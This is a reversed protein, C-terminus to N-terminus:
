RMGMMVQLLLQRKLEFNLKANQIDVLADKGGSLIALPNMATARKLAREQEALQQELLQMEVLADAPTIIGSKVSDIVLDATKVTGDLAGKADGRFFNLLKNAGGAGAALSILAKGKMAKSALAARGVMASTAAKATFLGAGGYAILGIQAAIMAGVALNKAGEASFLDRIAEGVPKQTPQTEGFIGKKEPKQAEPQQPAAAMLANFVDEGIVPMQKSTDKPIFDKGGRPIQRTIDIMGNPSVDPVAGKEFQTQKQINWNPDDPQRLAARLFEVSPGPGIEQISVNLKKKKKLIDVM